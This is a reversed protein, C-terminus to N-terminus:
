GMLDRAAEINAVHAWSPFAMLYIGEKHPVTETGFAVITLRQRLVTAIHAAEESHVDLLDFAEVAKRWRDDILTIHEQSDKEQEYLRVLKNLVSQCFITQTPHPFKKQRLWQKTAEQILNQQQIDAHKRVTYYGMRGIKSLRTVGEVAHPLVNHWPIVHPHQLLAPFDAIDDIMTVGLEKYYRINAALNGQVAGRAITEDIDIAYFM